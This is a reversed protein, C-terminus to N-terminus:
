DIFLVVGRVANKYRNYNEDAKHYMESYMERMGKEEELEKELSLIMDILEQKEIKLIEQERENEKEM